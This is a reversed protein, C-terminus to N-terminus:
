TKKRCFLSSPYEKTYGDFSLMWTICPLTIEKISKLTYEENRETLETFKRKQYCILIDGIKFPCAKM